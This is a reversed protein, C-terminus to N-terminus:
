DGGSGSGMALRDVSSGKARRVPSKGPYFIKLGEDLRRFQAKFTGPDEWASFDLIFYKEVQRRLPGPWDCTKWAEDLAVPCLVDRPKGEKRYRRELKRAKSAEWEVWDSEVSHGSLVLLVTPNLRMARDIQKEIRGAKMDHVDRWFRIRHANLWPELADIFDGDDHSYSLFLPNIQIPSEGQIRIIEYTVDIREAEPLDPHYLRAAEIEWDALGCGRLFAGPIQGQSKALTDTGITSPGRHEVRELGKAQSLDLDGLIGGGLRADQLNAGRLDIAQLNAGRLDVGQLHAQQLKAGLLGADRLDADRLNTRRLDTSKLDTDPLDAGQLSAGQLSASQINAGRLYVDRLDADRLDADRLNARELDTHLLAAGQLNAGEFDTGQLNTGQLDVGQLDANRLDPATRPHKRRWANWVAAGQRLIKLHEENMTSRGAQEEAERNRDYWRGPVIGGGM